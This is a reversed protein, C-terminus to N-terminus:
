KVLLERYISTIAHCNKKYDFMKLDYKQKTPKLKYLKKITDKLQKKNNLNVRSIKFKNLWDKNLISMSAAYIGNINSM